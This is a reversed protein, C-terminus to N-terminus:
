REASSVVPCNKPANSTLRSPEHPGCVTEAFARFEAARWDYGESEYHAALRGWRERGEINWSAIPRRWEPVYPPPHSPSWGGIRGVTYEAPTWNQRSRWDVADAMEIEFFVLHAARQEAELREALTPRDMSPQSRCLWLALWQPPMISLKERWYPPLPRDTMAGM